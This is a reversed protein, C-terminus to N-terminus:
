GYIATGLANDPSRVIDSGFGLASHSSTYPISFFAPHPVVITWIYISHQPSCITVLFAFHMIGDTGASLINLHIIRKGVYGRRGCIIASSRPALYEDCHASLVLRLSMDGDAPSPNSCIAAISIQHYTNPYITDEIHHSCSRCCLSTHEALALLYSHPQRTRFDSDPM